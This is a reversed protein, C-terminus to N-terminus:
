FKSKKWLGWFYVKKYVEPIREDLEKLAEELKLRCKEDDEETGNPDVYIPEGYLNVLNTNFIPLTFKDWSNFTVFNWNASYWTMPIIPAGTLKAIKIVGNKAKKVPGRPGDVMIAGCEGEKIRDIMQMTAEVSGKKGASGRVTRFGMKEIVRAIIEGDGSRSVMVNLHKKDKIGYVACQNAHWMAYICPTINPNEVEVIHTMFEQLWFVVRVCKSIIDVKKKEKLNVM